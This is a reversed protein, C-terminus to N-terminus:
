EKRRYRYKGGPSWQLRQVRCYALTPHVPDPAETWDMWGLSIVLGLDNRAELDSGGKLLIEVIHM